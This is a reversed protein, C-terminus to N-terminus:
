ELRHECGHFYSCAKCKNLSNCHEPQLKKNYIEEFRQFKAFLLDKMPEDYDNEYESLVNGNADRQIVRFLVKNFSLLTSYADLFGQCYCCMQLIRDPFPKNYVKGYKSIKDSVEWRPSAIFLSPELDLILEIANDQWNPAGKIPGALFILRGVHALYYKPVILGGM